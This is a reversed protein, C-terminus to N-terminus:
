SGAPLKSADPMYAVSASQKVLKQAQSMQDLIEKALVRDIEDDFNVNYIVSMKEKDNIRIWFSEKLRYPIACDLTKEANKALVAKLARFIPAGM